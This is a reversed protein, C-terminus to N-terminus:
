RPKPIGKVQAARVEDLAREILSGAIPEGAEKCLALCLRLAQDLQNLIEARHSATDPM